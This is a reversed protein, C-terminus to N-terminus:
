CDCDDLGDLGELEEVGDSSPSRFRYPKYRSLLGPVPSSLSSSIQFDYEGIEFSLRARLPPTLSYMANYSQLWEPKAPRQLDSFGEMERFPSSGLYEFVPNNVAAYLLTAESFNITQRTSLLIDDSMPWEEYFVDFRTDSNQVVSLRVVAYDGASYISRSSVAVFGNRNGEFYVFPKGASDYAVWPVLSDLVEQVLVADRTRSVLANFSGLEGSWRQAFLSFASAGIVVIMALITMTVLLEVLTLGSQRSV